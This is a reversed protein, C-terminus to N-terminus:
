EEKKEGLEEVEIRKFKGVPPLEATELIKIGAALTDWHDHISAEYEVKVLVQKVSNKVKKIEEVKVDWTPLVKKAAEVLGEVDEEKVVVSLTVREM